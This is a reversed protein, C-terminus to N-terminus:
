ENQDYMLCRGSSEHLDWCASKQTETATARESVRKINEVMGKKITLNPRQNPNRGRRIRYTDKTVGETPDAKVKYYRFMVEIYDERTLKKRTNRRVANTAPRELTSPGQQSLSETPKAEM